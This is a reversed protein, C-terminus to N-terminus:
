PARPAQAEYPAGEGGEGGMPRSLQLDVPDLVVRAARSHGLEEGLHLSFDGRPASRSGSVGWGPAGQEGGSDAPLPSLPSRPARPRTAQPFPSAPASVRRSWAPSLPVAHHRPAKNLFPLALSPARRSRCSPPPPPSPLAPLPLARCEPGAEVGRPQQTDHNPSTSLTPIHPWPVLALLSGVHPIPLFAKAVGTGHGELMSREWRACSSGVGPAVCARGGVAVLVHGVGACGTHGWKAGHPDRLAEQWTGRHASSGGPECLECGAGAAASCPM